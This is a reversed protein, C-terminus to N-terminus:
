RQELAGSRARTPPASLILEDGSWKSKLIPTQLEKRDSLVEAIVSEKLQSFVSGLKARGSNKRLAEILQHTFVGNQYRKSEWSIENPKSSCIVLQGSGQSLAASDVNGTRTIGKGTEASGSHCADIILVVRDAHVRQRITAALDQIPLGTAYLSDPKTDYMVLYNLGEVDLQSPSGHCSIFILVLDNPRAVRPLWKDGIQELVHEKTAQGDVLLKVHDSAFNAEKVLYESLDRADKASYNLGTVKDDAYQSIGVVLAWKDEIPGNLVKAADDGAGTEASTSLSVPVSKTTKAGADAIQVSENALQPVGDDFSIAGSLKVDYKLHVGPNTGFLVSMRVVQKRDLHLTAVKNAGADDATIPVDVLQREHMDTMAVEVSSSYYDASAEVSVHVDGPGAVFSYFESRGTAEVIGSLRTGKLPVYQGSQAIAGLLNGFMFVHAMVVVILYRAFTNNPLM